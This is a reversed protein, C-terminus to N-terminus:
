ADPTAYTHMQRLLPPALVRHLEDQAAWRVKFVTDGAMHVDGSVTLRDCAILSPTGSSMAADLQQVLKYKKADLSVVPAVGNRCSCFPPPPHVLTSIPTM